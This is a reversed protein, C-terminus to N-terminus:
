LERKPSTYCRLIGRERSSRHPCAKVLDALVLCALAIRMWTTASLGKHVPASPTTTPGNAATSPNTASM